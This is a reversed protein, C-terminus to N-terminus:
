AAGAMPAPRGAKPEGFFLRRWPFLVFWVFVYGTFSIAVGFTLAHFVAYFLFFKWVHHRRFFVIPVLLHSLYVTPPGIYNLVELGFLNTFVESVAIPSNIARIYTWEISGVLDFQFWGALSIDTLKNVGSAFYYTVFVLFCMSISEGGNRTPPARGLSALRHLPRDEFDVFILVALLGFYLLVADVDQGALFLHGWLYILVCYTLVAISRRPGRGWIALLVLLGVAFGQIIRFGTVGPRPVFWHIWHFTALESIVPLGTTLVYSSAPYINVPYFRFVEPPVTGYFGFDRSLLKWIFFVAVIIRVVNVDFDAGPTSFKAAFAEFGRDFLGKGTQNGPGSMAIDDRELKM